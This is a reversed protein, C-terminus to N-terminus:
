KVKPDDLVVSMGAIFGPVPEVPKATVQFTRVDIQGTPKKAKWAAYAGMDKMKTVRLSINKGGLAPVYAKLETDRHVNSLKDERISFLVHITTTDAINMVPAGSGVLEGRHPFIDTVVGDLPSVLASEEMYAGVESLIGKTRDVLAQTTAKEQSFLGVKSLEYQSKAAREAAEMSHFKAEVEDHKQASIVGQQYLNKVREYSKRAVDLGVKASQWMEFATNQLNKSTGERAQKNLSEAASKAAEAQELKALVEPSYIRVLTDGKSVRQGEEVLYESIRGPVKGSIRVEEVEAQGIIVEQHPNFFIFGAIAILIVVVLVVLFTFVMTKQRKGVTITTTGNDNAGKASSRIQMDKNEDM